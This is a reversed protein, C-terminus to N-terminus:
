KCVASPQHNGGPLSIDAGFLDGFLQDVYADINMNLLLGVLRVGMPNVGIQPLQRGDVQVTIAGKNWCVLANKVGSLKMLQIAGADLTTGLPMQEVSVKGDPVIDIQIPKALRIVMPKSVQSSYRATIDLNSSTVWEEFRAMAQPTLRYGYMGALDAVVQRNSPNWQLRMLPTGDHVDVSIFEGQVVMHANGLSKAIQAAQTGIPAVGLAKLSLGAVSLEGAENITIDV